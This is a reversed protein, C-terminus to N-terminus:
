GATVGKFDGKGFPVRYFHAGEWVLRSEKGTEGTGWNVTGNLGNLGFRGERDDVDTDKLTVTATLEGGKTQVFRGRVSGAAELDGLMTEPLLPQLYVTYFPSMDAASFDLRGEVLAPDEGLAVSGEGTLELTNPHSYKWYTFTLRQKEPGWVGQAEGHLAHGQVEIFVPDVYVLGRNVDLQTQFRWGRDETGATATFDVELGEGAKQNTSDSFHLKEVTGRVQVDAVAGRGRLRSSLMAKGGLSWGEPLTILGGLHAAAATLDLDSGTLTAGWEAKDFTLAAELIGGAFAIDRVTATVAGDAYRYTFEVGTAPRDLLSSGVILTGSPCAIQHYGLLAKPCDLELKHFHDLPPPLSLRDIRLGIGTEGDTALSLRLSVGEAVWSPGEIKGLDIRLGELAGVPFPATLFMLACSVWPLLNTHKKM